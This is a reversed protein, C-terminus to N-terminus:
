RHFVPISNPLNGEDGGWFFGSLSIKGQFGNMDLLSVKPPFEFNEELNVKLCAIILKALDCTM